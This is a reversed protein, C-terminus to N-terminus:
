GNGGVRGSRSQRVSKHPHCDPTIVVYMYMTCEDGVGLEFIITEFDTLFLLTLDIFKRGWILAGFTLHGASALKGLNRSGRQGSCGLTDKDM